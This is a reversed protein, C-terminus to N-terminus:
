GRFLPTPELHAAIRGLHYDTDGLSVEAVKSRMTYLQMDHEVAFSIGAFIVHGAVAAQRSLSGAAAKAMAVETSDSRGKMLKWAAEYVILRTGDVAVLLDACRHQIAQFSGIPRGFQVRSKSYEVVMELIRQARGLMEASQLVTAVEIAKAVPAWGHDVGGLVKEQSVRVDLFAVEYQRDRAMTQLPSITIGGSKADVLFLTIGGERAEGESTRAVCLIHDAIHAYPIFLKVGNILYHDDRAVARVDISGADFAATSETLALTLIVQGQAMRLLLERKQAESGCHLLTQGCLVSSTMLPSPLLARGIEEFLVMQDMLDGGAGGYEPSFGQGLLGLEAMKRWLEPSYGEEREELERVLIAPCEAALFERAARKLMEQQESLAMDM